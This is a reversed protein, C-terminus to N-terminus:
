RLPGVEFWHVPIGNKSYQPISYQIQPCRDPESLMHLPGQHEDDVRGMVTFTHHNGAVAKASLKSIAATSTM